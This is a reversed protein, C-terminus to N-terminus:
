QTLKSTNAIFSRYGEPTFLKYFNSSLVKIKSVIKELSLKNKNIIKTMNKYLTYIATM